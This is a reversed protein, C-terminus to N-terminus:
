AREDGARYVICCGARQEAAGSRAEVVLGNLAHLPAVGFPASTGLKDNTAACIVRRSQAVLARKFEAEDCGFAAIGAAADLACAGLLYIDPRLEAIHPALRTRRLRQRQAPRGARRHPDGAPEPARCGRRRTGSRQHRHDATARRAARAAGGSQDVRCRRLADATGAAPQRAGRRAGTQAGAHAGRARRALQEGAFAAAREWLRPPLPRCRCARAFRSPHYRGFHLVAAHTRARRGPRRAGHARPDPTAAGRASDRVAPEVNQVIM